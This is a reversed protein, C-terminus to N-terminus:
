GAQRKTFVGLRRAMSNSCSSHGRPPLKPSIDTSHQTPRGNAGAGLFLILKSGCIDPSLQEKKETAM